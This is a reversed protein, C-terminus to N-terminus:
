GEVRVVALINFRCEVGDSDLALFCGFEDPSATVQCGTEFETAFRVGVALQHPWVKLHARGREPPGHYLPWPNTDDHGTSM